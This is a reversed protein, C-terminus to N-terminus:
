ARSAPAPAISFALKSARVDIEAALIRRINSRQQFLPLWDYLLVEVPRWMAVWGTITLGEKLVREVAGLPIKASLESLTLFVALVSLGIALLRRGLRFNEEIRHEALDLEHEFHARFAERLTTADVAAGEGEPFHLVIKLAKRRTESAATLVHEVALPDLDRERFPAPDRNDFLQRTSKLGIDICCANGEVRYRSRRAM